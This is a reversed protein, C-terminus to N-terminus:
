RAVKAHSGGLRANAEKKGTRKEHTQKTRTKEEGVQKRADAPQNRTSATDRQTEARANRKKGRRQVKAGTLETKTRKVKRTQVSAQWPRTVGTEDANHECKPKHQRAAQRTKKKARQPAM